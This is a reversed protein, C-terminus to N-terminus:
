FTREPGEGLTRRAAPPLALDHCLTCTAFRKGTVDHLPFRHVDYPREGEPLLIREARRSPETGHLAREDNEWFDRNGAMVEQPHKNRADSRLVGFAREFSRNMLVFRGDADRIFLISPMNDIVNQLLTERSRVYSEARKRDRELGANHLAVELAARIEHVHYPKVVYGFPESLKARRLTSDDSHATLYIVPVDCEDQITQAAQIGDIPGKLAIDMLVVDVHSRRVREIAAAGTPEVGVVEYGLQALTTRLALAAIFEDEVILVAPNVTM